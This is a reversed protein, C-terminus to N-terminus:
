GKKTNNTFVMPISLFNQSALGTHFARTFALEIIDLGYRRITIIKRHMERIRQLAQQRNYTLTIVQQDEQLNENPVRILPLKIGDEKIALPFMAKFTKLASKKPRERQVM